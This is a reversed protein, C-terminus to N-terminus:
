TNLGERTVVTVKTERLEITLDDILPFQKAPPKPMVMATRRKLTATSETPPATSTTAVYLPQLTPCMNAPLESCKRHEHKHCATLEDNYGTFKRTRKTLGHDCKKKDCSWDTWPLLSCQADCTDYRSCRRVKQCKRCSEVLAQDIDQKLVRTCFVHGMESKQWYCGEVRCEELCADEYRCDELGDDFGYFDDETKKVVKFDETQARFHAEKSPWGGYSVLVILHGKSIWEDIQAKLNTYFLSTPYRLLVEFQSFLYVTIKSDRPMEKEADKMALQIGQLIIKMPKCKRHSFCRVRERSLRKKLLGKVFYLYTENIKEPKPSEKVFFQMIFRELQERAGHTESAFKSGATLAKYEPSDDNARSIAVSRYKVKRSEVDYSLSGNGYNAAFRGMGYKNSYVGGKFLRWVRIFAASKNSFFSYIGSLKNLSKSDGRHKHLEDKYRFWQLAPRFPRYPDPIMEDPTVPSQYGAPIDFVLLAHTDVRLACEKSFPEVIRFLGALTWLLLLPFWRADHREALSSRFFNM